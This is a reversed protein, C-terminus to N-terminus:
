FYTIIFCAGGGGNGGVASNALNASNVAGSGGGGGGPYAGNGGRYANTDQAAGGAGGSGLKIYSYICQNGDGGTAFNVYGGSTATPTSTYVDGGNQGNKNIQENSANSGGGGGGSPQFWVSSPPIGAGGAGLTVRGGAGSFGGWYALSSSERKFGMGALIGLGSQKTVNFTLTTSTNGGAEGATGGPAVVITGFSTNGGAQGANGTTATSTAGGNGGAGITITVPSSIDTAMFRGSAIVGGGGGGGGTRNQTATNRAGSGGGAGGGICYVEIYKAGTPLTYTSSSTYENVTPSSSGGGSSTIWSLVSSGNTSLVQGNTGGAIALKTLDTNITNTNDITKSSLTSSLQGSRVKTEPM